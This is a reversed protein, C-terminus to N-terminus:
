RSARAKRVIMAGPLALLLLLGAAMVLWSEPARVLAASAAAVAFCGAAVLGFWRDRRVIGVVAWAGGYLVFALAPWIEYYPTGTEASAVIVIMVTAVIMLAMAGWAAGVMRAMPGLTAPRRRSIFLNIPVYVITAPLWSVLMWPDHPLRPLVGAFLAWIFIFDAGFILGIALLHEGFQSPLPGRDEAVAKLFALDDRAAQIADTM